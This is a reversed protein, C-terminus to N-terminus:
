ATRIFLESITIMPAPGPAQRRGNQESRSARPHLDKLPQRKDASASGRNLRLSEEEIKTRCKKEIRPDEVLDHASGACREGTLDFQDLEIRLIAHLKGVARADVGRRICSFHLPLDGGNRGAIGVTEFAENRFVLALQRQHLWTQLAGEVAPAIQQVAIDQANKRQQM